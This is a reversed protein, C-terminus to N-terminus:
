KPKIKHCTKITAVVRRLDDETMKTGSPLCLGREFLDESVEGGVLRADYRKSTSNVIDKGKHEEKAERGKRRAGQAEREEINFVPQMDMPKWIPRSEINEKKLALRIVERDAGFEKPTILIVTLWCNMRGYSAEPMFEVGPFEQLANRYFENIARRRAIKEDLRELQGRGIAALLNSLRYNYGIQSHQYHPAPDRAQTSLFKARKIYDENDSVLMGGGSTTIIKNGNFSFVGMAGFKGAFTGNYTAGLAEAADEIIPVEYKKCAASIPGYDACQGYLDVAFVAKPLKGKKACSELEEGLLEPNMNWTERNSDIFVPTAGCYFIANATAAFTLDSCIVEEGNKIGLMVLALHLAATGSALAAAHGVGVKRCIDQEFADVQPGLTTIWNSEYAQILLERERGDLHPLSLYIRKM